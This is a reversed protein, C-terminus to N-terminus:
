YALYVLGSQPGPGLSFRLLRTVNISLGLSGEDPAFPFHGYEKMCPWRVKRRNEVVFYAIGKILENSFVHEPEGLSVHRARYLAM